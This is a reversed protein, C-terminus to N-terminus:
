FRVSVNKWVKVPIPNEILDEDGPLQDLYFDLDLDMVLGVIFDKVLDAVLDKVLGFDFKIVLGFVLIM